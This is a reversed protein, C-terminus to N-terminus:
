DSLDRRIRKESELKIKPNSKELIIIKNFFEKSKQKEGKSYFYEAMLYLAHSKWLSDSNIIPYLIKLLNEETEFESNFLAKKFIILNKIEKDLKIENIILDFYKNIETENEILNNDIIFYLSLPSYTKDKIEILNKFENLAIEYSKSNFKTIAFNYRDAIKVKGKKKFDIYFFTSILIIFIIGLISIIKVKNEVFYNKIKEIRTNTNIIEIEQDM